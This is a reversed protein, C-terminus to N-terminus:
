SSGGKIFGLIMNLAVKAKFALQRVDKIGRLEKLVYSPRFYFLLTSISRLRQLQDKNMHEEWNCPVFPEEHLVLRRWPEYCCFGKAVAQDFLPTFPVPNVTNINCYDPDLSILFRINKLVDLANKEFPHGIMFYAMSKIGAAKTWAVVQRIEGTTTGKQLQALGEDTGTEVGYNILYCGAERMLSLLEQTIGHIRCKCCWGVGLDRRILEECFEAVKRASINFTDEAFFFDTYGLAKLETMEEAVDRASRARYPERGQPCFTCTFPCGRSSVITTMKKGITLVNYYHHADLFTRDPVPLDSIEPLFRDSPGMADLLAINGRHFVGPIGSPPHGGILLRALETFKKEGEGVVVSDVCEHTLTERAYHNLHHGGMCVHTAPFAAKALRAVKLADIITHTYTSIGVLDPAFDKIIRNLEEYPMDPSASDVVKVRCEPLARALHTAVYLIGLPQYYGVDRLGFTWGKQANVFHEQSPNVLLVNM